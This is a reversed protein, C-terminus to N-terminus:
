IDTLYTSTPYAGQRSRRGHPMQSRRKIILAMFVSLFQDEDIMTGAPIEGDNWDKANLCQWRLWQYFM